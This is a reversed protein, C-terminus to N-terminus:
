WVDIIFVLARNITQQLKYVKFYLWCYPILDDSFEFNEMLTVGWENHTEITRKIAIAFDANTHFVHYSKIHTTVSWIKKCIKIFVIRYNIAHPRAHWAPVPIWYIIPQTFINHTTPNFGSKGVMREILDTNIFTLNAIHLWINNFLWSFPNM